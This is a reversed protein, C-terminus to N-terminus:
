LKSFAIQYNILLIIVTKFFIHNEIDTNTGIIEKILYLTLLISNHNCVSDNDSLFLSLWQGVINSPLILINTILNIILIRIIIIFFHLLLLSLLLLILM